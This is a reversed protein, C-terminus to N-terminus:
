WSKPYPSAPLNISGDTSGNPLCVHTEEVPGAAGRSM